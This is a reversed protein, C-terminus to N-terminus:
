SPEFIKVLKNYVGMILLPAPWLGIFQSLKHRGSLELALSTAMSGMSLFLFVNSPVKAAQQELLRTVGGEAHEARLVPAARYDMRSKRAAPNIEQRQHTAM